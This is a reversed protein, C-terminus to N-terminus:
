AFRTVQRVKLDDGQQVFILIRSYLVRRGPEHDVSASDLVMDPFYFGSKEDFFDLREM